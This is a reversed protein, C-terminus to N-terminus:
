GHNIGFLSFRGGDINGSSALLRLATIADAGGSRVGAGSSRSVEGDPELWTMDYTIPKHRTGDAPNFMTIEGEINATDGYRTRAIRNFIASKKWLM